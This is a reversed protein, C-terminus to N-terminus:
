NGGLPIVFPYLLSWMQILFTLLTILWNFFTIPVSVDVQSVCLVSNFEGCCSIFCGLPEQGALWTGSWRLTRPAGRVRQQHLEKSERRKQNLSNGSLLGLTSLSFISRTNVIRWRQARTVFSALTWHVVSHFFFTQTLIWILAVKLNPHETLWWTLLFSYSVNFAILNLKM